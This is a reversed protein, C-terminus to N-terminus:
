LNGAKDFVANIQEPSFTELNTGPYYHSLIEIYTKGSLAMADAGYQSMGVRHGNGKASIVVNEGQITLSVATSPLSLLSRIQVGAFSEDGIWLTDVGGGETYTITMSSAGLPTNSPLGIKSLFDEKSLTIESFYHRSSEEGPSEVSRLYPVDTGWVDVADETRGGSCSFYTAEILKGEFTLVQGKTTEVADRLKEVDAEEGSHSLYEQITLYAQCCHAETCLNANEHKSQKAIRRLTYTRTAVAQANLAECEFDAPMEGLLVGLVYDELDLELIKNGDKIRITQQLQETIVAQTESVFVPIPENIGYNGFISFLVNPITFIMVIMMPLVIKRM